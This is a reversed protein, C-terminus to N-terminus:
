KNYKLVEKTKRKIRKRANEVDRVNINLAEAIAINSKQGDLIKDLVSCAPKDYSLLDYLQGILQEYNVALISNFPEQIAKVHRQKKIGPEEDEDDGDYFNVPVPLFKRIRENRIFSKIGLFVVVKIDPFKIRNWKRVGYILKELVSQVIDDATLGNVSDQGLYFRLTKLAYYVFRHVLKPYERLAKDLEDVVEQPNYIVSQSDPQYFFIGADNHPVEINFSIM